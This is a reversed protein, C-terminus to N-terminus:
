YKYVVFDVGLADMAAANLFEGPKRKDGSNDIGLYFNKTKSKSMSPPANEPDAGWKKNPESGMEFELTGGEMLTQYEIWPKNYAKGNLKASQIYFNDESVNR